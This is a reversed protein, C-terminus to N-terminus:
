GLLGRLARALRLLHEDFPDAYPDLHLVLWGKRTLWRHRRWDKAATEPRDHHWGDVELAIWHDPWACDIRYPGSRHQLVPPPLHACILSLVMRETGVKPVPWGARLLRAEDHSRAIRELVTSM